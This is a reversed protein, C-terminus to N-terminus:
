KRVLKYYNSPWETECLRKAYKEQLKMSSFLVRDGPKKVEDKSRDGFLLPCLAHASRGTNLRVGNGDRMSGWLGWDRASRWVILKDNSNTEQSSASTM